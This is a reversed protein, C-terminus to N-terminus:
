AREEEDVGLPNQAAYVRAAARGLALEGAASTVPELLFPRDGDPVGFRELARARREPEDAPVDLRRELERRLPALAADRDSVHALRSALATVYATRAPPLARESREPPALRRGRALAFAVAALALGGLAVWWSAPIARVGTARGFGHVGEVFVVAREPAGAVDLGLLANDAHALGRNELPSPDAILVVRGRGLPAVAVHAAGWSGLVPLASGTRTWAGEGELEVSRVGAVEPAPALPRV